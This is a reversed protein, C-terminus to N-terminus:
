VVKREDSGPVTTVFSASPMLLVVDVTSATAVQIMMGYLFGRRQKNEAVADLNGIVDSATSVSRQCLRSRGLPLSSSPVAVRWFVSSSRALISQMAARNSFRHNSRNPRLLSCHRGGANAHYRTTRSAHVPSTFISWTTVALGSDSNLLM